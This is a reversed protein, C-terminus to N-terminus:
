VKQETIQNKDKSKEPDNNTAGFTQLLKFVTLWYVINFAPQKGLLGLYYPGDAIDTMCSLM